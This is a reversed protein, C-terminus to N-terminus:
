LAAARPERGLTHASYGRVKQSFRARLGASCPLAVREYEWPLCLCGATFHSTQWGWSSSAGCKNRKSEALSYSLTRSGSKCASATLRYDAPTCKPAQGSQRRLGRELEQALPAQAAALAVVCSLLASQACRKM